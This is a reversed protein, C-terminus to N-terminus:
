PDRVVRIVWDVVKQVSLPAGEGFLDSLEMTNFYAVPLGVQWLGYSPVVAGNTVSSM